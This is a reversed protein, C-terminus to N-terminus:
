RHTHLLEERINNLLIRLHLRWASRYGDTPWELVHHGMFWGHRLGNGVQEGMGDLKHGRALERFNRHPGLRSGLHHPKPNLIIPNANLRLVLVPNEANKFAQRGVSLVFTS